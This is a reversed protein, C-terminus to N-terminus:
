MQTEILGNACAEAKRRGGVRGQSESMGNDCDDFKANPLSNPVLSRRRDKKEEGGYEEKTHILQHVKHRIPKM